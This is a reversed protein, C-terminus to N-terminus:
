NGVRKEKEGQIADNNLILRIGLIREDEIDFEGEIM